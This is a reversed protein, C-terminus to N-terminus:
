VWAVGCSHVRDYRRRQEEPSVQHGNDDWGLSCRACILNGDTSPGNMDQRRCSLCTGIIHTTGDPLVGETGVMADWRKIRDEYQNRVCIETVALPFGDVRIM